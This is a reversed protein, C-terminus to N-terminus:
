RRVVVSPNRETLIDDMRRQIGAKVDPPTVIYFREDHIAEVVLEAVRQM